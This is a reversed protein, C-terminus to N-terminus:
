RAEFDSLIKSRASKVESEPSDVFGTSLNVDDWNVSVDIPKPEAAIEEGVTWIQAARQNLFFKTSTITLAALGVIVLLRNRIEKRSPAVM